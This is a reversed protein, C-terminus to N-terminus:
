PRVAGEKLEKGTAPMAQMVGIADV